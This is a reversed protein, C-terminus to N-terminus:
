RVSRWADLARAAAGSELADRARSLASGIDSARGAVRIRLAANLLVLDRQSPSASGDLVALTMRASRLADGPALDEDSAPQLGLEAADLRSEVPDGAADVEVIRTGRSTTVDEHGEMGQVVLTRQWALAAMLPLLQKLYPMHAVGLLHFPARGLDAVKEVMHLPTRLGLEQRLPMLAHMAPVSQAQRLYGLSCEELGRAVADPALDTDVGLAAIVDGVPLGPKPGMGPEGHLLVPVGAAAAVISAAPSVVIHKTRGDYPSGIDLLGEVRPQFRRAHERVADVYGLLEEPAEGRYRQLLLLAGAQAPTAQGDMIADLAEHAEERTLARGNTPGAGVAAVLDRIGVADSLQQLKM